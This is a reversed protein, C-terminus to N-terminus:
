SDQLTTPRLDGSRMCTRQVINKHEVLQPLYRPHYNDEVVQQLYRPFHKDEVLQPLYSRQSNSSPAM